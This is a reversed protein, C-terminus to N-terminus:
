SMACAPAPSSVPSRAPDSCRKKADSGGEISPPIVTQYTDARSACAASAALAPGPDVSSASAALLAQAAGCNAQANLGDVVPMRKSADPQWSTTRISPVAAAVS